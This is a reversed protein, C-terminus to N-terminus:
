PSRSTERDPSCVARFPRSFATGASPALCPQTSFRAKALRGINRCNAREMEVRQGSEIEHTTEVEKAPGSYKANASRTAKRVLSRGHGFEDVSRDCDDQESLRSATAICSVPPARLPGHALLLEVRGHVIRVSRGVNSWVDFPTTRAVELFRKRFRNAVAPGCIRYPAASGGGCLNIVHNQSAGYRRRRTTGVSRVHRPV